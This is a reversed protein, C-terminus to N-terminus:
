SRFLPPLGAASSKILHTLKTELPTGPWPHIRPVVRLVRYKRRIFYETSPEYPEYPEYPLPVHPSLVTNRGTGSYETSPLMDRMHLLVHVLGIGTLFRHPKEPPFVGEDIIKALNKDDNFVIQPSCGLTSHLPHLPPAKQGLSSPCSLKGLIGCDNSYNSYNSSYNCSQPSDLQNM